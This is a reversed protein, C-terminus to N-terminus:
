AADPAEEAPAAEEAVLSSVAVVPSRQMLYRGSAKAHILAVTRFAIHALKTYPAYAFLAWVCVLHVFYLLYYVPAIGVWRTVEALLGTSGVATVLGLLLWDYYSSTADQDDRLRERIVLFCGTLLAVAGLNALIKVPNWLPWPTLPIHVVLNLFYIGVFICTTVIFLSVFGYFIGMHGLYRDQNTGCEKFNKHLLIEKIVEIAAPIIGTQRKHQADLDKWFRTIGIAFVGVAFLMTMIFIVDVALMPIMKWSRILGEIQVEEGHSVIVSEGFHNTFLIVLLFLAAPIALLLPLAKPDGVKEALFKPVSYFAIAKKRIANLVDGPKAGRPCYTSCDNCNHCLWIDPSKVLKDKLGWQAQIMEKRPFPSDDPSLPCVV